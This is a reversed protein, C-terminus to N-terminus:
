LIRYTQLWKHIIEEVSSSINEVRDTQRDTQSNVPDSL